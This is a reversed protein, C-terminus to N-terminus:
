GLRACAHTIRHGPGARNQHPGQPRGQDQIMRAYARGSSDSFKGPLRACAQDAPPTSCAPTSCRCMPAPTRRDRMPCGYPPLPADERILSTFPARMGSRRPFPDHMSKGRVPVRAAHALGRDGFLLADDSWGVAATPGDTDWAAALGDDNKWVSGVGDGSCFADEGLPAAAVDLHLLVAPHHVYVLHTGSRGIDPTDRHGAACIAM